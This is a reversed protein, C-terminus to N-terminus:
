EVEREFRKGWGCLLVSNGNNVHNSLPAVRHSPSENRFCKTSWLQLKCFPFNEGRESINRKSHDCTEMCWTSKIHKIEDKHLLGKSSFVPLPPNSNIPSHTTTQLAGGRWTSLIDFKMNGDDISLSTLSLLAFKKFFLMEETHEGVNEFQPRNRMNKSIPLKM